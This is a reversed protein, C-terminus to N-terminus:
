SIAMLSVWCTMDIYTLSFSISISLSIVVTVDNFWLHAIISSRSVSTLFMEYVNPSESFLLAPSWYLMLSVLMLISVSVTAWVFYWYDRMSWILPSWFWNSVWFCNYYWRSWAYALSFCSICACNWWSIWLTFLSFSYTLADNLASNSCTLDVSLFSNSCTLVVILCSNSVTLDVKRVSNSVTLLVRVCSFSCTLDVSMYYSSCTRWVKVWAM